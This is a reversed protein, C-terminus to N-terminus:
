SREVDIALMVGVDGFQADGDVLAVEQGTISRLALALNTSLTTKGIGGKAGAVTIVTGRANNASQEVWRALQRQEEQALVTHVATLRSDLNPDIVLASLNRAM